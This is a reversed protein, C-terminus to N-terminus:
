SATIRFMDRRYPQYSMSKAQTVDLRLKDKVQVAQVPVLL